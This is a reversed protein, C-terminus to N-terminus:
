DYLAPLADDQAAHRTPRLTIMNSNVAQWLAAGSWSDSQPAYLVANLRELERKLNDDTIRASIAGLNNAPQQPWHAAAWALLAQRAQHPNNALCAHKLKTLLKGALETKPPATKSIRAAPKRWWLYLTILWALSLLSVALYWPWLNDAGPESQATLSASLASPTNTALASSDPSTVPGSKPAQTMTNAPAAPAVMITTPPLTATEARNNNVNWWSINIAPLTYNGPQTPVIAYKEVRTAQLGQANHTTDLQPQDPYIKLSALTPMTMEPLQDASLGVAQLTISRTVPEGVKFAQPNTSWSQQLLVQKAPLWTASINDPRPKIDLAISPSRAQVTQSRVFPSGFMSDIRSRKGEQAQGRFLISPIELQGSNQAILAYRREIVGYARGNRTTQYSVDEGLRTFEVGTMQPDPLVGELLNIAHFLRLTYIVQQQVYPNNNDVEGEMFLMSQEAGSQEASTQSVEITIPQSHLSGLSIAPIVLQGTKKPALTLVLQRRADMRGNIINVQQSQSTDIIDFLTEVASLDPNMPGDYDRLEVTLRLTETQQVQQRDVRATMSAAWLSLSLGTLLLTCLIMAGSRVSVM